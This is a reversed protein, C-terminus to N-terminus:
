TTRTRTMNRKFIRAEVAGSSKAQSTAPMPEDALGFGQM